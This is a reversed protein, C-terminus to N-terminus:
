LGANVKIGTSRHVIAERIYERKDTLFYIEASNLVTLIDHDEWGETDMISVTLDVVIDSQISDWDWEDLKEILSNTLKKLSNM